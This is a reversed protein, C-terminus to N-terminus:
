ASLAQLASASGVIAGEQGSSPAFFHIRGQRNLNLCRTDFARLTVMLRYIDRLRDPGLEGPLGALSDGEPEVKRVDTAAM